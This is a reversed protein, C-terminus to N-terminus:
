PHKMDATPNTATGPATGTGAPTGAAPVDESAYYFGEARFSNGETDAVVKVTEIMATPPLEYLLEYLAYPGSMSWTGRKIAYTSGSVDLAPQGASPPIKVPVDFSVSLSMDKAIRSKRLVDDISAPRRFMDILKDPQVNQDLLMRHFAFPRRGIEKDVQALIVPYQTAPIPSPGAEISRKYEVECTPVAQANAAVPVSGPLVALRKTSCTFSTFTWGREFYPLDKLMEYAGKAGEAVTIKQEGSNFVNAFNAAYLANPKPLAALRKREAERAIEERHVKEKLYWYYGGLSGGVIGITLSVVIASTALRSLGLRVMESAPHCTEAFLSKISQQELSAFENYHEGFLGFNTENLGVVHVHASQAHEGLMEHLVTSVDGIRAIRDGRAVPVGDVIAAIWARATSTDSSKNTDGLVWVIAQPDNNDAHSLAYWALASIIRGPVNSQGKTSALGLRTKGNRGLRLKHNARASKTLKASIAKEDAASGPPVEYWEVGLAVRTGQITEFRLTM